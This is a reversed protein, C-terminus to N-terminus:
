GDKPITVDGIIHNIIVKDEMMVDQNTTWGKQGRPVM